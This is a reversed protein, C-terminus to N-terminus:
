CRTIVDIEDNNKSSANEPSALPAMEEDASPRFSGDSTFTYMERLM